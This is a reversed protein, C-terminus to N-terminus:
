VLGFVGNSATEIKVTGGGGLPTECAGRGVCLDAGCKGQSEVEVGLHLVPLKEM